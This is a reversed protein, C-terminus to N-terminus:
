GKKLIKKKFVIVYKTAYLGINVIEQLHARRFRQYVQLFYLSGM